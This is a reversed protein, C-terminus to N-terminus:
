PAIFTVDQMAEIRTVDEEYIRTLDDVLDADWGPLDVVEEIEDEVVYKDLFAGIVRRIQLANQPPHAKMYNAFRTMGEDSMISSLVDYEGMLRKDPPPQIMRQLIEGWILPTDENCWVTLKASPAAARLRSIVDSWRINRPDVGGMFAEFKRNKVMDWAAPIFTAPNRLAFYLEIEDDPFLQTLARMKMTALGFFEGAEFVRVPLSVFASNTMVLRHTAEADEVIADILIDRTDPAPTEGGLNQITERLLRRYRTLGPIAIGHPAMTRSNKVLSKVLQDGDTCNAGIHFAIQM